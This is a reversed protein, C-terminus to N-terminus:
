YCLSGACCCMLASAPNSGTSCRGCSWRPNLVRFGREAELLNKYGLAVDEATMTPDSTSLLYNGKDAAMLNEGYVSVFRGTSPWPFDGAAAM